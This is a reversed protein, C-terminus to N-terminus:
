SAPVLPVTLRARTGRAPASVLSLDGGLQEALSRAVFLGLGLGHGSGRTSFFPEGARALVEPPMGEGRDEVEVRLRDGELGLRLHVPVGAPSAQLANRVLAQVSQGVARVPLAATAERVGDELEVRVREAEPLGELAEDLLLSVPRPHLMEGPSQGAETSMRALAERCRSVQERILRADEAAEPLSALRRELEHAAVAITSLPSGLAHATGAALTALSALRDRRGARERERALEAERDALARRVRLVFAVLTGAALAFAVWMGRLHLQMLEAHGLAVSPSWPVPLFLAGFCLVVLVLLAWTLAPTLVVAGLAVDVLYLVSFPNSPGGSCALLVTLLVTDLAMLAAVATARVPRGRGVWLALAVNSAVQIALVTGVALPPVPIHFVSKAALALLLFLAAAAWRLRVLWSVDVPQM